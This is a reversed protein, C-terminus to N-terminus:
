RRLPQPFSLELFQNEGGPDAWGCRSSRDVGGVGPGWSGGRVFRVLRDAVMGAGWFGGVVVVKLSEAQCVM